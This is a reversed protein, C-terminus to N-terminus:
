VYRLTHCWSLVMMQDSQAVPCSQLPSMSTMWNLLGNLKSFLLTLDSYVSVSFLSQNQTRLEQKFGLWSM